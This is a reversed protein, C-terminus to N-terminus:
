LTIDSNPPFRRNILSEVDNNIHTQNFIEQRYKIGIYILSFLIVGMCSFLTIQEREQFGLNPNKYSNLLCGLNLILYIICYFIDKKALLAIATLTYMVYFIIILIEVIQISINEETQFVFLLSFLFLYSSLSFIVAAQAQFCIISISSLNIINKNKRFNAYSFFILLLFFGIFIYKLIGIANKLIKEDIFNLAIGFSYNLILLFNQMPICYYQDSYLQKKFDHDKERFATYITIINFIVQIIISFVFCYLNTQMFYFESFNLLMIRKGLIIFVIIAVLHIMILLINSFMFLIKYSKSKKIKLNTIDDSLETNPYGDAQQSSMSNNM